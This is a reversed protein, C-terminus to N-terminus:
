GRLALENLVCWSQLLRVASDSAIRRRELRLRLTADRVRSISKHSSDLDQTRIEQQDTESLEFQTGLALEPLGQYIGVHELLLLNSFSTGDMRRNKLVVQTRRKEALAFRIEARAQDNEFDAQLFRCNQNLHEDTCGTMERFVGNMFILPADPKSLNSLTLAFPIKNLTEELSGLALKETTRM